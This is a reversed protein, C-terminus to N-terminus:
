MVLDVYQHGEADRINSRAFGDPLMKAEAQLHDIISQVEPHQIYDSTQMIYQTSLPVFMDSAPLIAESNEVM